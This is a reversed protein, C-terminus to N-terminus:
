PISYIFKGVLNIISQEHQWANFHAEKGYFPDATTVIVMNLDRLIVILQGGHGWAYSFQHPGVSASWWQYGYGVDKFYRGLHGSKVGVSNIDTSYPQTSAKVWDAPIIQDGEMQGENLYLLGFKVMDRATFQIDGSGIRYGDLDQPWDGLKVQLPSFLHQEGFSKLDTNCARSIIMSLWNSTLNSYQFTSGPDHTLPIDEIANIYKGTWLTNWYQDETEEWPYGARMQLMQQITIERKRPDTLQDEIEPFFGVMKQDIDSLCGEGLAIGLLASVYSKTVSARQSLQDVSGKNFYGEGILFGNKIILLGYLTELHSAEFYIEDVLNKALGQESPSSIKWDDRNLPQYNVMKHSSAKKNLLAAIKPRTTQIYNSDVKLGMPGLASELQQYTEQDLKYPAIVIDFATAGDNNRIYKNAGNQLLMKVIDEHCFFAAIHLPTSGQGNPISLDAGKEILLKVIESRGFTTAIILPTSGFQDKENLNSESQLIERVQELNGQLVALHLKTNLNQDQAPVQSAWVLLFAAILIQFIKM